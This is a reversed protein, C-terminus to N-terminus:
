ETIPLSVARNISPLYVTATGPGVNQGLQNVVDIKVDVTCYVVGRLKEKYKDVVQGKVWLADGYIYPELVDVNLKRIFGEDGMWNSLLQTCFGVKLSGLGFSSPMGSAGGMHPDGASASVATDFPWGTIPNTRLFGPAQLWKRVHAEYTPFSNYSFAMTYYYILASTTLPGKVVFPLEDGVNTEEWYLPKAGRNSMGQIDKVLRQVEEDSYYHVKRDTIPQRRFGETAAEPIETIKEARAIAAYTGRCVAVLDKSAKNWYKCESVLYVTRDKDSPKEYVDKLTHETTFTDNMRVLDNWEWDFAAEVGVLPYPGNFLVGQSLPYRITTLFTPPAILTAHRTELAYIVDTYLPNDDGLALAYGSIFNHRASEYTPTEFAGTVSKGVLKRCEEIFNDVTYYDLSNMNLLIKLGM